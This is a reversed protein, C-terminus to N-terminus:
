LNRIRMDGPMPIGFVFYLVQNNLTFTEKLIYFINKTQKELWMTYLTCFSRVRLIKGSKSLAGSRSNPARVLHSALWISTQTKAPKEVTGGGLVVKASCM